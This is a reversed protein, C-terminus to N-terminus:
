EVPVFPNYRQPNKKYEELGLKVFMNAVSTFPIGMTEGLEILDEKQEKSLTLSVRHQQVM